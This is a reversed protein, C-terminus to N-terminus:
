KSSKVFVELEDERFMYKGNKGKRYYPAGSKVWTRVTAVSVDYKDAVQKIDLDGRSLKAGEVSVDVDGELQLRILVERKKPKSVENM